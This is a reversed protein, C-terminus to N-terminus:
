EVRDVMNELYQMLHNGDENEVFDESPCFMKEVLDFSFTQLFSRSSSILRAWNAPAASYVSQKEASLYSVGGLSHGTEWDAPATSFM